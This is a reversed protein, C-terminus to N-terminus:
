RVIGRKSRIRDMTAQYDLENRIVGDDSLQPVDIPTTVPEAIEASDAVAANSVKTEKLADYVSVASDLSDAGIEGNIVKLAIAKITSPYETSSLYPTAREIRAQLGAHNVKLADLEANAEIKDEEAMTDGEIKAADEDIASAAAINTNDQKSQPTYLIGDIMGVSLADNANSPDDAILVSGRGFDSKVQEESVGRGMAVRAIFVREIANIRTRIGEVGEDTSVKPAKNPANESVIDVVRIGERALQETRDIGSVLIGISGTEVIASDALIKDAAVAIWYGASAILGMNIAVVPKASGAVAQYVADLGNVEGGPTNMILEIKEVDPDDVAENIADIVAVYSTGSIGFLQDWLDPGYQTLIGEIRIQAIGDAISLIEEKAEGVILKLSPSVEESSISLAAARDEHYQILDPEYCAWLKAM